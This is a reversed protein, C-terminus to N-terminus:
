DAPCVKDEGVENCKTSIDDTPLSYISRNAHSSLPDEITGASALIIQTPVTQGYNVRYYFSPMVFNTLIGDRDFGHMVSYGPTASQIEWHIDIRHESAPPKAPGSLWAIGQHSTKLFAITEYASKIWTQGLDVMKFFTGGARSIVGGSSFEVGFYAARNAADVPDNSICKSTDKNWLDCRGLAKYAVQDTHGDPVGLTETDASIDALDGKYGGAKLIPLAM